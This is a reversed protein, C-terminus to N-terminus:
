GSVPRQGEGFPAVDAPAIDTRLRLPRVAHRWRGADVATDGHFEVVHEPEVPTFELPERSSWSATIHVDAWPHGPGGATLLRGLESRLSATLPTSRAALRLIGDTDYRGLLLTLPATVPGTVAGTIAESTEKARVKIWGRRGPHYAQDWGKAVVGEVGVPGWLTLWQEALERDDTVPTLTWPAGLDHTAFLDELAARRARYPEHLLEATGRQLLDFALYHAPQLHALHRTTALPRNVRQQLAGFQLRGEMLIVAEGDLVVEEPLAAAAETIEPFATSLDNGSRSQLQTTGASHFVLLRFGDYKPELAIGGPLARPVPLTDTAKALMPEIPPILAM